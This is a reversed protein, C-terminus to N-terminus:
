TASFSPQRCARGAARPTRSCPRCCPRSWTACGRNRGSLRSVPASPAWTRAAERVLRAALAPSNTFVAELAQADIALYRSAVRARVSLPSPSRDRLRGLGFFEGPKLSVGGSWSRANVPILEIEGDILYLIQSAIAGAAVFEEGAAAERGFARYLREISSALPLPIQDSYDMLIEDWLQSEGAGGAESTFFFSPHTSRM